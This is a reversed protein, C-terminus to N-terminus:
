ISCTKNIYKKLVFNGTFGGIVVVVLYIWGSLSFEAIPTYLAGVNCGNSLRTGFGMIFGGFAFVFFDKPSIKLGIIFKNNFSGAFLLTFVAGLIIGFNQISTSHQLIPTTFFEIPKSTFQSLSEASVGLLMLINAFWLGFATTASWGKLTTFLLIFFLVSIIVLSVKMDWARIFIADYSFPKVETTKKEIHQQIYNKKYNNEYKQAFKIVITAFLISLIMAGLFGNFGDFLFLDPLYVGGKTYAGTESTLWSTKLWLATNQTYFGLFVAMAFFFITIFARSFGSALDTLSGTACCSSLAMGFGFMLGGIILGINIPFIGLNYDQNGDYLISINFLATLMFMYMLAKALSSSGTRVLRNVGGAFGMSAKTLAFGFGLGIIFRFFLHSNELNIYALIAVIFLILLGYLSQIKLM